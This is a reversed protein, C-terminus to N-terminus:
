KYYYQICNTNTTVVHQCKIRFSSSKDAKVYDM